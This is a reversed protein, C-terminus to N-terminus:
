LYPIEHTSGRMSNQSDRVEWNETVNKLTAVEERGGSTAQKWEKQQISKKILYFDEM